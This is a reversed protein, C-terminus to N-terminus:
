ARRRRPAERAALAGGDRRGDHEDSESGVGQEWRAITSESIRFLRATEQRSLALLNKLRLIRYRQLPRYHPRRREPVRDWREALIDGREQM